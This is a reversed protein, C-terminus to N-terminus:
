STHNSAGLAELGTAGQFTGQYTNYKIFIIYVHVCVCVTNMHVHM